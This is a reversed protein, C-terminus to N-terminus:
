ASRRAFFIRDDKTKVPSLTNINLILIDCPIANIIGQSTSGMAHRFGGAGHSAVVILDADIEKAKDSIEFKPTGINLYQNKVDIGLKKGFEQLSEAGHTTLEKFAESYVASHDRYTVPPEIVHLISFKANFLKAVALARQGVALSEPILDTAFLIHKYM